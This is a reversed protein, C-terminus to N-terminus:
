NIANYRKKTTRVIGYVENLIDTLREPTIYRRLIGKQAVSIIGNEESVVISLMDSEETIGIAARHRTGLDKSLTQSQSLPLFCGAALIRNSKIIVAGDHIPAKTNFISELLPATVLAGLETGTELIHSSIKTPAIVVLAGVRSKSMTQCAKVLEDVATRLEEDSVNIEHSKQKKSLNFFLTKFDSQYVVVLAVIAFIMMLNSLLMALGLDYFQNLIFVGTYILLLVTYVSMLKYSKKKHFFIFLLLLVAVLAIFDFLCNIGFYNM